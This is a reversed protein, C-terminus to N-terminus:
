LIQRTISFNSRFILVVDLSFSNQKVKTTKTAIESVRGSFFCCCKKHPTNQDQHPHAEIYIQLATWGYHPFGDPFRVWVCITLSREEGTTETWQAVTSQENPWLLPFPARSSMEVKFFLFSLFVYVPIRQVNGWLGRMRPFPWWWIQDRKSSSNNIAIGNRTSQSSDSMNSMLSIVFSCLRRQMTCDSIQWIKDWTAPFAALVGCLRSSKIRSWCALSILLILGLQKM